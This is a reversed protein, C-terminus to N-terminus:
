SYQKPPLPTPTSGNVRMTVDAVHELADVRQQALTAEALCKKLSIRRGARKKSKAARHALTLQKKPVADTTKRPRGRGRAAMPPAVGDVVEDNARGAEIGSVTPTPTAEM